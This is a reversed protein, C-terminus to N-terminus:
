YKEYDFNVVFNNNLLEKLVLNLTTLSHTSEISELSENFMGQFEFSKNDTEIEHNIKVIIYKDLDEYLKQTKKIENLIIETENQSDMM